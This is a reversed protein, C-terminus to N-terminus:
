VKRIKALRGLLEAVDGINRLHYHAGTGAPKGVFVTLGRDKVALFADEDTQDDGICVPWPTEGGANTCRELLWLVTKGKDWQVAPRIECVEKGARLVIEERSLFPRVADSVAHMVASIEGRKVNRFHVTLTSHKDEVSAGYVPSLTRELRERVEDLARLSAEPVPYRFATDPGEVELGHNGGYVIGAIGVRNRVDALSRGSIIAIRCRGDASLRALRKKMCLSLVAKGPDRVIPSLTGDYDLFLYLFRRALDTELEEWAELLHPVASM